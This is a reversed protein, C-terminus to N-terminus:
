RSGADPARGDRRLRGALRDPRGRRDPHGSAHRLGEGEYTSLVNVGYTLSGAPADFVPAVLEVVLIDETGTEDRTVLAANPPNTPTFGLGELFRQTPAEGFVRDPRDSFYVTTGTHGELTLLFDAGAGVPIAGDTAGPTGAGPNATFSGGAATQVFLFAPGSDAPVVPTAVPLVLAHQAAAARGAGGPCGPRSLDASRM